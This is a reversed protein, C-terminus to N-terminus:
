CEKGINLERLTRVPPRLARKEGEESKLVRQQMDLGLRQLTKGEARPLSQCSTEIRKVM